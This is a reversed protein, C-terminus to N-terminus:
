KRLKEYLDRKANGSQKAIIKLAENPEQGESLLKQYM